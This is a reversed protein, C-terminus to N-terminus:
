RATLPQAPSSRGERTEARGRLCVRVCATTFDQPLDRRAETDSDSVCLRMPGLIEVHCSPFFAERSGTRLEPIGSLNRKIATAAVSPSRSSRSRLWFHEVCVVPSCVCVNLVCAARM